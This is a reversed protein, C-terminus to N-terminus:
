CNKKEVDCSEGPAATASSIDHFAKTFAEPMQAGSIGYQDNIIYFPVGTIGMRQLDQEAAAVETLGISSQLFLETRDKDLGNSVALAILNEKKTLDVGETFYARFLAEVIELQKGEQKAYLILRHCERTNPSTPQKLFDFVLGEASAIKAVNSTLREYQAESGFKDILHERQARGEPPIDPNLEFPYYTIDFNYDNSSNEIAKELRRKGIYCWPCVVDSVVAIRITPKM